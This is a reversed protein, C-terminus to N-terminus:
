LIGRSLFAKSGFVGSERRLDRGGRGVVRALSRNTLGPMANQEM